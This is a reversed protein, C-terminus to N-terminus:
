FFTTIERAQAHRLLLFLLPYRLCPSSYVIKSKKQQPFTFFFNPDGQKTFSIFFPIFLIQLTLYSFFFVLEDACCDSAGDKRLLCM